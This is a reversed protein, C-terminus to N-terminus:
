GRDLLGSIKTLFLDKCFRGLSDTSIASTVDVRRLTLLDSGPQNRGSVTTCAAGYGACKVLSISQGTFDEMQGNPYAFYDVQRGLRQEILKKGEVIEYRAEEESVKSLIPHSVTHAGITVLGSAVM